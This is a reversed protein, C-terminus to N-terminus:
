MFLEIEGKGLCCCCSCSSYFAERWRRGLDQWSLLWKQCKGGVVVMVLVWLRNRVTHLHQKFFLKGVQCMSIGKWTEVHRETNCGCECLVFGRLAWTGVSCKVCDRWVIQYHSFITKWREPQPFDLPSLGIKWTFPALLVLFSWENLNPAFHKEVNSLKIRNFKELNWSKLPTTAWCCKVHSCLELAFHKTTWKVGFIWLCLQVTVIFWNWTADNGFEGRWWIVRSPFKTRWLYCVVRTTRWRPELIGLLSPSVLLLKWGPSSLM